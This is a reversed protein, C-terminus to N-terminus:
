RWSMSPASSRAEWTSVKRWPYLRIRGWSFMLQCRGWSRYRVVGSGDFGVVGSVSCSLQSPVSAAPDSTRRNPIGTSRTGSGTPPASVPTTSSSCWSGTWRSRPETWRASRWGGILSPPSTWRCSRSDTVWWNDQGRRGGSWSRADDRGHLLSRIWRTSPTRRSCLRWWVPTTRAGRKSTVTSGPELMTPWRGIIGCLSPALSLARHDGAGNPTMVPFCAICSVCHALQDHGLEHGEVAHSLGRAGGVLIPFSPKGVSPPLRRELGRLGTAIDDELFRRGHVGEQESALGVLDEGGIPRERRVLDREGSQEVPNRLVHRAPSKALRELPRVRVQAGALERAGDAVQLIAVLFHM